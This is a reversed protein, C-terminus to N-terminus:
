EGEAKIQCFRNGTNTRYEVQWQSEDAIEQAGEGVASHLKWCTLDVTPIMGM